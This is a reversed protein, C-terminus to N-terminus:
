ILRSGHGNWQTLRLHAGFYAKAFTPRDPALTLKVHHIRRVIAPVLRGSTLDSVVCFATPSAACAEDLVHGHWTLLGECATEDALGDACLASLLREAGKRSAINLEIGVAPTVTGDREIGIALPYRSALPAYRALLRELDARGGTWGARVITEVHPGSDSSASALGFRLPAGFRGHMVGVQVIRDDADLSRVLTEVAGKLVPPLGGGCLLAAVAPADAADRLGAFLNPTRADGSGTDYELWCNGVRGFLPHEADALASLFAALQRAGGLALALAPDTALLRRLSAAPVLRFMLDVGAGRPLLPVEFGVLRTLDLPVSRGRDKLAARPEQEVAATLETDLFDLLATLPHGTPQVAETGV